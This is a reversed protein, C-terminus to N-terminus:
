GLPPSTEVERQPEPQTAEGVSVDLASTYGPRVLRWALLVAAMVVAAAVTTARLGAVDALKGQVLAGLPYFVGLVVHNVALVRGLLADPARQQAATTFTSLAVMYLFGLVGLALGM